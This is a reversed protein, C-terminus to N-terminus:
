QVIFSSFLVGKVPSAEAKRKKRPRAPAEDDDGAAALKRVPAEDEHGLTRSVERAIDAALKEKGDRKFLEESTRQSVLLLVGNRITPLVTKIRGAAGENELDLTIGIQAFRDGGPDALNVVMNELALYIPAEAHAPAAAAEEDAAAHSRKNLVFWAGGAGGGLLVVAALTVILLTKGKKKPADSAPAAATAAPASM